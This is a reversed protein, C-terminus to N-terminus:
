YKGRFGEFRGIWQDASAFLDSQVGRRGFIEFYGICM